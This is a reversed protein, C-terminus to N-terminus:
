KPLRLALLFGLVPFLILSQLVTHLSFHDAAVGALPILIIGAMGWAFGMMLASITGSQAPALNQAMVINVPNTSLLIFGAIALGVIALVGSAHFFLLLFPVSLILSYIIVRRGGFRDAIHGGVFGGVAGMSSYLTLALSASGYAFGREKTLYLPLFQSFSIQVVSRLFVLMYLLFLPKAIPRLAEWDVTKNTRREPPVHGPVYALLALTVLIGPIMAWPSNHMGFRSLITSFYLPGLAFGLQGASIFLAMARGRGDKIGAAARVSGQPHFSAVASAGLFVLLLLWGYSPALGLCSIFIAAVAPALVSFLRSHFRDSLYGYVPQMVSGAFVMTGGLIGAQTLTVGLERAFLPQFVGLAASYVDVAFHGASYLLLTAMGSRVAPSLPEPLTSVAGGRASVTPQSQM